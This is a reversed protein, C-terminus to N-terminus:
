STIVRRLRWTAATLLVAAFGALVLLDVWIAEVGQGDFVLHVWGDMAWAHPTLHGVARMAPSVIELPWMCGGLMALAVALPIGVATAQEATRALSGILLGAGTAVLAFDVVLLGAGVPNGWEVGFAVRGVLLILAAQLLAFVLRSAGTAAVLTGASVPAAYTRRTVGLRRSEVLSAGVALSNIFVFLVLNSPATYSFQNTTSVVAKGVSVTEVGVAPLTPGLREAAALNVAQDGGVVRSAFTAAAQTAGQQDVVGAVASQVSSTASAAPDALLTLEATQGSTVAAGYGPPIILGANRRGTRLDRELVGQDQYTTVQLASSDDLGSVLGASVPSGDLDIVGVTFSSPFSGFTAGIVIIVVVPLVLIFFLALRDRGIRRLETGTIAGLAALRTPAASM